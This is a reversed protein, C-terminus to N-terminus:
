GCTKLFFFGLGFWFRCVPVVTAPKVLMKSLSTCNTSHCLVLSIHMHSLWFGWQFFQPFFCLPLPSCVTFTADSLHLQQWQLYGTGVVSSSFIANPLLRGQSKSDSAPKICSGCYNSPIYTNLLAPFVGLLSYDHRFVSLAHDKRSKVKDLFLSFDLTVQLIHKCEEAKNDCGRNSKWKGRRAWQPVKGNNPSTPTLMATTGVGAAASLLVPVAQTSWPSHPAAPQWSCAASHLLVWSMEKVRSSAEASVSLLPQPTCKIWRDAPLSQEKWPSISIGALARTCTFGLVYKWGQLKGAWQQPYRPTYTQDSPSGPLFCFAYFGFCQVWIRSICSCRQISVESGYLLSSFRLLLCKFRKLIM